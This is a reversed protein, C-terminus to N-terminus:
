FAGVGDPTGLGTPADYGKKAVCLYDKGCSAGGGVYWWDNDGSTIDFLSRAHAYEYGPKIKAANGALGYIGAVIPSSASTGGVEVWGGWDKNYIAVNWALAAVDAVTRGPCHSDHQWRPKAVYASCGSSGAGASPENWVKETWGRRNRARSLGTGGVATVTALDAPFSAATYGYDGSSAVIAHGPHDYARAYTLAQGNEREGYSNSVAAAGLRVATNEAAALDSGSQSNAEVVLIHCKPCAASVMDVDLTTELDWGSGTGDAPLPRAKGAANVKRFCGNATTCPPLGYKKRYTNLYSELRPTDYADVVAVTQHPNKGVPLKYAREIDRAGWGAPAAMRAQAQASRPSYLVLCGAQGFGVAPCAPRYGSPDATYAADLVAHHGGRGRAEAPTATAYARRITETISGGSADRAGVKLWVYSGPPATFVASRTGGSGAISARRWTAGDDFSVAAYVSTIAPAAALQQHGVTLGVVQAGAPATGDLAIGAVHYGVTLLPEVSCKQSGDACYWAAPLTTGPGGASRWTWTTTTATSLPFLAGTRHANLTFTVTSPEPSLKVQTFFDPAGRAANGSAIKTGNEDIQYSGSITGVNGFIGQSFGSGTHGPTGDGFPTVDLSLSNGARTASLGTGYPDNGGPPATNLVTHLPYTNWGQSMDAGPTFVRGADLQGGGLVSYSQFYQSSWSVGKGATLYEIQRMPVSVPYIFGIILGGSQLLGSTVGTLMLGGTTAVDSSYSARVTALSSAAVTYRQPGIVGPPGQFTLYYAAPRTDPQPPAQPRLILRASVFEQLTGAALRQRTPSIWLPVGGSEFFGFENVTVTNGVSLTNVLTVMFYDVSAPKPTSFTVQETASRARITVSTNGTVTFRPDIVVRESVPNQHKDFAIFDAIAWYPGAPVSYKAIGHYFLNGSEYFDGFIANNKPDFVYVIDGTDPKGAANIGRMTLVHMKFRPAPKPRPPSPLGAGALSVSVGGGFMGDTGYSGKGYDAALQRTLAAGFTKASAATLYGAAVGGAARTITIGPLRPERGSYTIQVPLRGNGPLAAVDFLSLDLGRGLFPVAADPIAYFQGGLRLETMAAAFGNGAMAVLVRKGSVTLRDGNILLETKSDNKSIGFTRTTGAPQNRRVPFSRGSVPVTGATGAM